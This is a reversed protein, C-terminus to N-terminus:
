KSQKQKSKPSMVGIMILFFFCVFLCVSFFGRLVAAM